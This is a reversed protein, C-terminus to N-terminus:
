FIDVARVDDREGSRSGTGTRPPQPAHESFFYELVANDDGPAAPEGTRPNVRMSVIGPPQPRQTEPADNIADRMFDIWIPLPNNSGYENAGVPRNDSFGVWVTSVLSPHYGSFWTDAENTTGTKGALDRRGLANARTATGRRVVDRLMSDIIYANREDIVRPAPEPLQFDPLEGPLEEDDPLDVNSGALAGRLAADVPADDDRGPTGSSRHDTLEAIQQQSVQPDKDCDPCVRPHIARRRISGDLTYVEQIIHPEVLYGGNAFVGFAQTMKLPTVGMTGGGIALQTNRPFASTDFGFQRSHELVNGAGVALLVRMSVLNVSRYLAERLQMPGHYRDGVNRPRYAAELSEDEFVLPADLFISAPSIGRELAASFVFPKFISGPQRAAQLAHNYQSRFFDFGGVKAKIAGTEPDMAVLAGQIEPVQSLAWGADIERVRILDGVSVIDAATQPVPGRQNVSIFPRAWRMLPWDVEIELGTRTIAQFSQENVATVLAPDLSGVRRTGALMALLTDRDTDPEITLQAEPGRYGHRRDYALLGERVSRTAAEQQRSDITTVVEFGASYIQPGYEALLQQRVWEAVYPSPLDLGREFRSATNPAASAQAFTTQDISNEELMRRLVLNRRNIARQPGSIPNGISPAQPIGALMAMEHLELEHLPRGYYTYAAAQAGYARQGFPVINIYLELIEHKELEQEIKLALLMEKFKRIFTQELTFSINRALQMTITSAGSRIERTMILQRTDNLLSLWDIGRHRYFRKDETNLIADIFEQPVEELKIPITRREGFEGILAGDAAYIRLPTELKVHRYSEADPIQPNLYLYVGALSLVLGCVATWGLWMIVFLSTRLRLRM